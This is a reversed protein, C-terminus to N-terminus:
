QRGETADMYMTAIGVLLNFREEDNGGALRAMIADYQERTEVSVRLAVWVKGNGAEGGDEAKARSHSSDTADPSSQLDDGVFRERLKKLLGREAIDSAQAVPPERDLMSKSARTLLDNMRERNPWAMHTTQDLGALVVAEEEPSLDVWICPWEIDAGYHYEMDEVRMHGDLGKEEGRLEEPWEPGTRMNVLLPKLIGVSQILARTTERQARPHDRPNDPNAAWDGLRLYGIRVIRNRLPGLTPIHNQVESVDM